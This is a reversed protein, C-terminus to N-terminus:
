LSDRWREWTRRQDDPHLFEHWGAGQAQEFSVGMYEYWRRNYFDHYGDPLTSWVLQPVNDVIFRLQTEVVTSRETPYLTPVGHEAREAGVEPATAAAVYTVSVHAVEDQGETRLPAYLAVVRVGDAAGLPVARRRGARAGQLASPDAHSGDVLARLGPRATRFRARFCENELMVKGDRRYIRVPVPSSEIVELVSGELATAGFPPEETSDSQQAM